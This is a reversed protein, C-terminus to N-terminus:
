VGAHVALGHVPVGRQIVHRTTKTAHQIRMPRLRHGQIDRTLQQGLIVVHGVLEGLTSQAGAVDIRVGPKAHRGRHHAVLPGEAFVHDRATVLVEIHGVEDHQHSGIRGPTMGDDVLANTTILPLALCLDHHDIRPAAGGCLLCIQMQRERRPAIDRQELSQQGKQLVVTMQVVAIQLGLDAPKALRQGSGPLM